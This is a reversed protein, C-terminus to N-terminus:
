QLTKDSTRVAGNVYQELDQKMCMVDCYANRTDIGSVFKVREAKPHPNKEWNYSKVWKMDAMVVINKKEFLEKGCFACKTKIEAISM